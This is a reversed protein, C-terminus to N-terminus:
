RTYGQRGLFSPEIGFQRHLGQGVHQLMLRDNPNLLGKEKLGDAIIALASHCDRVAQQEARVCRRRGDQTDARRLDSHADWAAFMAERMDEMINRLGHRCAKDDLQKALEFLASYFPERNETGLHAGGHGYHLWSPEIGFSERLALGAKELMAQMAHDLKGGTELAQIMTELSEGLGKVYVAEAKLLRNQWTGVSELMQEHVARGATRLINFRRLEKDFAENGLCPQLDQELAKLQAYFAERNENGCPPPSCLERQDSRELRRERWHRVQRGVWTKPEREESTM